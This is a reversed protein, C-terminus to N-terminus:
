RLRVFGGLFPRDECQGSSPLLSYALSYLIDGHQSDQSIGFSRSDTPLAQQEQESFETPVSIGFEQWAVSAETTIAVVEELRERHEPWLCIRPQGLSYVLVSSSRPVVPDPGLDRVLAAGISFAVVLPTASLILRQASLPIRLLFLAMGSLGAAVVFAGSIAAPALTTSVQCCTFWVGTLHRLWLPEVAIPLVM